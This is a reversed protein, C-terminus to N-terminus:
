KPQTPTVCITYKFLRTCKEGTVMGTCQLSIFTSPPPNCFTSRSFLPTNLRSHLTYLTFHPNHLTFHLTHPPFHSTYLTSHLTFLTFHWTYLASHLTCVTSHLTCLTSHLTHLTSHLTCHTFYLATHLACTFHLTHLAFNLTYLAFHRTYLTFAWLSRKNFSKWLNECKTVESDVVDFGINRAFSGDIKMVHWLIGHRGRFKCTTVVQRLGSLARNAFFVCCSVDSTSRRGRLIVMSTVLTSRSGRFMCSM